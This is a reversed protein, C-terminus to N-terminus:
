RLPIFDNIIGLMSKAVVVNNVKYFKGERYWSAGVISKTNKHHDEKVLFKCGKNSLYKVLENFKETTTM